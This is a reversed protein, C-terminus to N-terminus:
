LILSRVPWNNTPGFAKHAGLWRKPDKGGHTLSSDVRVTCSLVTSSEVRPDNNQVDRLEVSM